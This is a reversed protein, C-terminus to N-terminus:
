EQIICPKAHFVRVKSVKKYGLLYSDGFLTMGMFKTFKIDGKNVSILKNDHFVIDGKSIHSIDVLDIEHQM